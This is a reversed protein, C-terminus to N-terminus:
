SYDGWLDLATLINGFNNGLPENAWREILIDDFKITVNNKRTILEIGNRHLNIPGYMSGKLGKLWLENLKPLQCVLKRIDTLTLWNESLKTHNATKKLGMLTHIAYRCAILTYRHSSLYLESNTDLLEDLNDKSLLDMIRLDLQLHCHKSRDGKKLIGSRELLTQAQSLVLLYSGDLWLIELSKLKALDPEIFVIGNNHLYLKKLKTLKGIHKPVYRIENESLDLEELNKLEAIWEPIEKLTNPGDANTYFPPQTGCATKAFNLKKLHTLYKIQEPMESCNHWCLNLEDLKVLKEEDRTLGLPIKEYFYDGNEDFFKDEIYLLDPINNDDAWQFLEQVWKNETTQLL